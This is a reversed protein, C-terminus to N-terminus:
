YAHQGQLTKSSVRSLKPVNVQARQSPEDRLRKAQAVRERHDEYISRVTSLFFVCGKLVLPVFFGILTPVGSKKVHEM